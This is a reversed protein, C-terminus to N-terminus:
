TAPPYVFGRTDGRMECGELKACAAGLEPGAARHIAGDIGGGGLLTKNAANVIPAMNDGEAIDIRDLMSGNSVGQLARIL